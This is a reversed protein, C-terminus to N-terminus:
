VPSRRKISQLQQPPPLRTWEMAHILFDGVPVLSCFNLRHHTFIAEKLLETARRMHDALQADSARSLDEALLVRAKAAMGPRLERDWWEVDQHWVRDRFVEEARRVRRRVEPHVRRLIQFIFMPPPGKASKPAGVPRAAFYIFRNIVAVDLYDLLAGYHRSGAKFGAMMADPVVAATFISPPRTVHTQELEWAGPSPPTFSPASPTM